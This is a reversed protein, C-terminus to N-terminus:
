RTRTRKAAHTAAAAQSAESTQIQELRATEQDIWEAIETRGANRAADRVAAWDHDPMHRMLVKVVSLHGRSAAELVMASSCKGGMTLLCEAVEAKGNEVALEVADDVIESPQHELLWAIVSKHGHEAADLIGYETCKCETRAALWELTETNGNSAASDFVSVGFEDIGNDALWELADIHGAEAASCAASISVCSVGKDLLLQMMATNGTRAACVMADESTQNGSQDVLWEVAGLQQNVVAVSIFNPWRSDSPWRARMLELVDIRGSAAAVECIADHQRTSLQGDIIRSLFEISGTPVSACVLEIYSDTNFRADRLILREALDENGQCLAAIIAGHSCKFRSSINNLHLQAIADNGALIAGTLPLDYANIRLISEVVDKRGLRTAFQFAARLEEFKNHYGWPVRYDISSPNFRGAVTNAMAQGIRCFYRWHTEDRFEGFHFPISAIAIDPFRAFLVDFCKFFDGPQHWGRHVALFSIPRHSSLGFYWVLHQMPETHIFLTEVTLRMRPLERAAALDNAIFAKIWLRSVEDPSLPLPLFGFRFRALHGARDIIGDQLERPLRALM